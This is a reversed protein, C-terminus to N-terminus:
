KKDAKGATVRYSILSFLVIFVFLSYAIASGYGLRSDSIFTNDVFKWIVTLAANDPGGVSNASWGGYLLKPEDFLQFGTIITTVILFISINKLLPLTIKFFTNRSSSGDMKAAEYVDQPIATMGALYITMFYGFNKWIFMLAIICQATFPTQLWYYPEGLLGLKLLIQNLIGSQWDFMYSFIFGIAVPTTIYPTFIATQFFRKGKVLQFTLNALLLGIGITLPIALLMIIITNWLSKWFLPDRLLLDSYNGFGIFEKDSVGNWDYLSLFFSYIVPYLQFALYSLVFPLAFLYPWIQIKRSYGASTNKM